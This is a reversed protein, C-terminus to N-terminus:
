HGAKKMDGAVVPVFRDMRVHKTLVARLEEASLAAIADNVKQTFMMTRGLFLDGAHQGAIEDDSTLSNDFAAQYSSKAAALEEKTVGDRVLREIEERMAALAKDANQPACMAGALIQGSAEFPDANVGSFTGYSWGEKQRLREMLRSDVSGGLVHNALVLAPYDPDDQRLKLTQAMVVMAMEKDPTDIFVPAAGHVDHFPEPLRQYKRKAAWGELHQDVADRLAKPDFDGVVAIQLDGAGWLQQHLRVLDGRRVKKLRAIAEEYTPQYRPDSAPFPALTRGIHEFARATPESRAEQLSALQEQRLVELEKAPFTPTRLMEAILEVVGPVSERVTTVSVWAGTESGSVWVQAKLRDLEDSLEQRTHKATGRMLMDGVLEAATTKGRLEELSGARLRMRLTVADGRTEKPLLALQIGGPTQMRTTHGEINTITAAFAEGEGLAGRGQYGDVYAMVDPATTLPARDPAGTPLFMGVTRNSPKIFRRAFDKVQAVSVRELRDRYVFFMRWDGLAAWESLEIAISTSDTLALELDKLRRNRFRTIEEETITEGVGRVLELMRDRVPEVAKGAPVEATLEVWGPDHTPQTYGYIASTQGSEVMAKYLRGSPEDTLVHLLAEGAVYDPDSGAVGHYLVGVVGVEGVRELKVTREGDQVPEVTYTAPLEREPRPITAFHEHVMALARKPEFAGAVVLVANDPQYYKEYFAKLRSAPVNEIDSRSGITSKGYNHWLFATSLIREGLVGTPSNEGIEFENRVVSFEKALAKPDISSHVMRDAEFRLAWELNEESAPMTEYYNTRDYWTTGNFDAGHDQLLQWPDTHTPTGKFLMHELLHAMGTEGYGEHRSGVLYTVNVTVRERSPDPFMLVHMGNALEYESIGEVTRLLKPPALEGAEPTTETSALTGHVVEEPMVTGGRECAVLPSVLGLALAGRLILTLDPRRGALRM